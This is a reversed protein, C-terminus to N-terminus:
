IHTGYHRFYVLVRFLLCSFMVSEIRGLVNRISALLCRNICMYDLQCPLCVKGRAEIVDTTFAKKRKVNKYRQVFGNNRRSENNRADHFRKTKMTRLCKNENNYWHPFVVIVCWEVTANSRFGLIDCYM